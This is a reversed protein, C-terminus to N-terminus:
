NKNVYITIVVQIFTTCFNVISYHMHSGNNTHHKITSTKSSTQVFEYDYDDTSTYTTSYTIPITLHTKQTTPIDTTKRTHIYNYSTSRFPKDTTSSPIKVSTTHDLTTSKITHSTTINISPPITLSTPLRNTTTNEPINKTPMIPRKTTNKTTITIPHTRKTSTPERATSKLPVHNTTGIESPTSKKTATTTSNKPPIAATSRTTATSPMITKKTKFETTRLTSLYIKSSAIENNWLTGTLFNATGTSQTPWLTGTLFNQDQGNGYQESQTVYNERPRRILWNCKRGLNLKEGNECMPITSALTKSGGLVM